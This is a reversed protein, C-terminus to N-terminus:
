AAPAAARQPVVVVPHHGGHVLDHAVSGLLLSTLDGRGRSGIVILQAGVEDALRLIRKAVRDYGCNVTAVTVAIGAAALEGAILAAAEDGAASDVRLRNNARDVFIEHVHVVVVSYHGAAALAKVFQAPTAAVEGRDIALLIPGATM